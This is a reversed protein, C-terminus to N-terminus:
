KESIGFPFRQARNAHARLAERIIARANATEDQL